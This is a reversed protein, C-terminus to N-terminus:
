EKLLQEIIKIFTAKPIDGSIKYGNIFWTPTGGSGFSDIVELKGGDNYDNEIQSLYKEESFCKKFRTTDAGIQNALEALSDIGSVGQHLFLKDHMPWFLGQEGACRAAMALELSNEHLPFDRFIIKVSDKYNAAIERVNIHSNKCYPCAFDAFEVITIKPKASGIWYDDNNIANYKKGTLEIQGDKTKNQANYIKISNFLYFGVAVFVVLVVTGIALIFIGWWKKYWKKAEDM